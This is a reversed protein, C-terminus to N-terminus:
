LERPNTRLALCLHIKSVIKRFRERRSTNSAAVFVVVIIVVVIIVIVLTCFIRYCETCVVVRHSTLNSAGVSYVKALGVANSQQSKRQITYQSWSFSVLWVYRDVYRSGRLTCRSQPRMYCRCPHACSVRIKASRAAPIYFIPFVRSSANVQQDGCPASRIYRYADDTLVSSLEIKASIVMLDACAVAVAIVHAHSARVYQVSCFANM